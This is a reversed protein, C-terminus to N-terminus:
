QGIGYKYFSKLSFPGNIPGDLHTQENGATFTVQIFTRQIFSHLYIFEYNM